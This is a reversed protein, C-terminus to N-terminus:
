SVFHWGQRHAGKREVLLHRLVRCLAERARGPLRRPPRRRPARADVPGHGVLARLIAPRRQRKCVHVVRHEGRDRGGPLHVALHVALVARAHVHPQAGAAGQPLGARGGQGGPHEDRARPLIGVRLLAPRAQVVGACRCGRRLSVPTHLRFPPRAIPAQLEYVGSRATRDAASACKLATVGDEAICHPGAEYLDDFEDGDAADLNITSAWFGCYDEERTQKTANGRCPRGDEALWPDPAEASSRGCTVDRSSACGNVKAELDEVVQLKRDVTESIAAIRAEYDLAIPALPPGPPYSPSTSARAPPPSPPPPPPPAPPQFAPLTLVTHRWWALLEAAKAHDARAATLADQEDQLV